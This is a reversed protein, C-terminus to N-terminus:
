DAKKLRAYYFGDMNAEGPLIQRGFSAKRGWDANIPQEIADPHSALFRAIAQTNEEPMISCTAYVLIGGPALLPWLSHLLQLQQEPLHDFDQAQRLYKIDPHRRIVGTASCPADLLIREFPKGDWWTKTDAADACILHASLSLRALNEKVRLLRKQDKDIAVLEALATQAELLHATKGGPAACADLVRHGPKVALLQAALQAALDQVSVHGKAFGPLKKVDVPTTLSIGSNSHPTAIAEIGHTALLKLYADRSQKKLNVRLTLPPHQNNAAVIAQWDDPWAQQISHLLWTPHAFLAEPQEAINNLLRDKDRQFNRLVANVVGRAWTKGLKKTVNVTEAVAAHEPIRMALMQYLGLAMLIELDQDKPKLPKALLQGIIAQLRPYSRLCGYCLEKVLSSDPTTPPVLRAFAENLSIRDQLVATLVKTALYRASM